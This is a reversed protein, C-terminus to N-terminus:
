QPKRKRPKLLQGALIIAAEAGHQTVLAAEACTKHCPAGYNDTLYAGRGCIRCRHRIFNVKHDRWDLAPLLPATPLQQAPLNWAPERRTNWRRTIAANPAETM